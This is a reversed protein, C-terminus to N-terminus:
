FPIADDLEKAKAAERPKKGIQGMVTVTGTALSLGSRENGNGDVWSRLSLKGECYVETGKTLRPAMADVGDGFLAVKVWSTAAESDKNTDVCVSFAVWPKGARTTRVEADKGLRGAFAASIGNM